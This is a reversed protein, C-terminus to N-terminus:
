RVNILAMIASLDNEGETSHPMQQEALERPPGGTTTTTTTAGGFLLAPNSPHDQRSHAALTGLSMWRSQYGEGGLLDLVGGQPSASPPKSLSSMFSFNGHSAGGGGGGNYPDLAGGGTTTIGGGGSVGASSGPGIPGVSGATSRHYGNGGLWYALSPSTVSDASPGRVRTAGGGHAASFPSNVVPDCAFLEPAGSRSALGSAAAAAADEEEEELAAARGPEDRLWHLLRSTSRGVAGAGPGSGAGAGSGFGPPASERLYGNPWGSAGLVVGGRLFGETVTDGVGYGGSASASCETEPPDQLRVGFHSSRAQQQQQPQQQPTPKLSVLGQQQQQKLTAVEGDPLSGAGDLSSISYFSASGHLGLGNGQGGGLLSSSGNSVRPAAAGGRSSGTMAGATSGGAAASTTALAAGSSAAAPASLMREMATNAATQVDGNCDVVCQQLLETPVGMAAQLDHLQELEESIDIESEAASASEAAAALVVGPPANAADGGAVLLWELAALLNSGHRQVAAAAVYELAGLRQLQTILSLVKRAVICNICLEEMVAAAEGETIHSQEPDESGHSAQREHGGSSSGGVAGRGSTSPAGTDALRSSGTRCGAAAGSTLRSGNGRDSGIGIAGCDISSRLLGESAEQAIMEGFGGPQLDVSASLPLKKKEARKFNKKQAKTLKPEKAEEDIFDAGVLQSGARASPSPGVVSPAASAGASGPHPELASLSARLNGSSSNGAAGSFSGVAAEPISGQQGSGPGSACAVVAAASAPASPVVSAVSSPGQAAPTSSGSTSPGVLAATATTAAAASSSGPTHLRSGSATSNLSSAASTAAQQPHQMSSQQQQASSSATALTSGWASPPSGPRPTLERSAVQTSPVSSSSFLAAASSQATGLAPWVPPPPTVPQPVPPAAKPAAQTPASAAAVPTTKATQKKGVTAQQLLQQLQPLQLMMTPQPSLGAPEASPGSPKGWASAATTGAPKSPGASSSVLGQLDGKSGHSALSTSPASLGLERRAQAALEVLKQKTVVEPRPPLAPIEKRVAKQGTATASPTAAIAAAPKATPAPKILAASKSDKPADAKSEEKTKAAKGNQAPPASPKAPRQPEVVVAALKTKKKDENRPHIPHSKDIRGPCAQDFRTGKGCGRPCKFGTKRNKELKNSKLYKELCEQHYLGGECHQYTCTLWNCEQLSADSPAGCLDCVGQSIEVAM